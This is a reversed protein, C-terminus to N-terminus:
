PCAWLGLCEQQAALQAAYLTDQYRTDTENIRVSALGQRVLEYGVHRGGAWVYRLLAGDEDADTVDWELLLPTGQLLLSTLEEARRGADAVRPDANDKNPVLIGQMRVRHIQGGYEVEITGGDIIGTLRAEHPNPLPTPTPTLTPEPTATAPESTQEAAPPEEYGSEDGAGASEGAEPQEEHEPTAPESTPSRYLTVVRRVAATPSASPRSTPSATPTASPVPLVAAQGAAPRFGFTWAVLYASVTLLIGVWFTLVLVLAWLPWGGVHTSGSKERRSGAPHLPDSWNELGEAPPAQQAQGSTTQSNPM